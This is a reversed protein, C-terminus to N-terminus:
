LVYCTTLRPFDEGTLVIWGSRVSASGAPGVMKFDVVFRKGYEDAEGPTADGTRAAAILATRLVDIHATTIGLVARFVRAKHKGRPHADNLCYDRLKADDVVAKDGNPLQM